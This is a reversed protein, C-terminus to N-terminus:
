FKSNPGATSKAGTPLIYRLLIQRSRTKYGKVLQQIVDVFRYTNKYTFYGYFKNVLTRHVGEMVVCKVDPNRCLHFQIGERKFM